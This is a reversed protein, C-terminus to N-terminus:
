HAITITMGLKKASQVGAAPPTSFLLLWLPLSAHTIHTEEQRGSAPMCINMHACASASLQVCHVAPANHQTAHVEVYWTAYYACMDIKHTNSRLEQLQSKSCVAAQGSTDAVPELHLLHAIIDFLVRVQQQCCLLVPSHIHRFSPLNAM